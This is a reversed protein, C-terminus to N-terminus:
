DSRRKAWFCFTILRKQALYPVVRAPLGTRIIKLVQEIDKDELTCLDETTTLGNTVLADVSEQNFRLRMLAAQFAVPAAMAKHITRVMFSYSFYICGNTLLYRLPVNDERILQSCKLSMVLGTNRISM